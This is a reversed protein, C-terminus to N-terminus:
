GKFKKAIKENKEIYNLLKEIFIKDLIIEEMTLDEQISAYEGIM